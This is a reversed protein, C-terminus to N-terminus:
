HADAPFEDGPNPLFEFIFRGKGDGVLKSQCKGDLIRAIESLEAELAPSRREPFIWPMNEVGQIREVANRLLGPSAAFDMHRASFQLPELAANKSITKIANRHASRGMTEMALSGYERIGGRM